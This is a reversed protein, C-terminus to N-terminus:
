SMIIEDEESSLSISDDDVKRNHKAVRKFKTKSSSMISMLSKSGKGKECEDSNDSEEEEEFSNDSHPM